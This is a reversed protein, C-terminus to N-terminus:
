QGYQRSKNERLWRLQDVKSLKPNPLIKETQGIEDGLEKTLKQENSPRKTVKKSEEKKVPAGKTNKGGVLAYELTKGAAKLRQSKKRCTPGCVEAKATGKFYKGCVICIKDTKAM